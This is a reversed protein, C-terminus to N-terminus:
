KWYPQSYNVEFRDSITDLCMVIAHNRVFLCHYLIYSLEANHIEMSMWTKFYPSFRRIISSMLNTVKDGNGPVRDKGICHHIISHSVM